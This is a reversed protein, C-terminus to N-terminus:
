ELMETRLQALTEAARQAAANNGAILNNSQDRDDTKYLEAAASEPQILAYDETTVVWGYVPRGRGERSSFHEIM